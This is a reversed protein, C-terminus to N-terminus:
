EVDTDYSCQASAARNRLDAVPITWTHFGIQRIAAVIGDQTGIGGFTPDVLQLQQSGDDSQHFQTVYQLDLVRHSGKGQTLFVFVMGQSHVPTTYNAVYLMDQSHDSKAGPTYFGLELEYPNDHALHLPDQPATVLCHGAELLPDPPPATEQACVAASLCALLLLPLCRLPPPEPLM